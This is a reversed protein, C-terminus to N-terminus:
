SGGLEPIRREVEAWDDAGRAALMGTLRGFVEEPVFGMLFRIMGERDAASQGGYLWGVVEAMMPPEVLAAMGGAIETQEAVDFERELHPILLENEKAIHLRMHERLSVAERYLRVAADRREGGAPAREIDTLATDMTAFVNPEFDEHDFAYSEAVFEFRDNLAPFLVAEETHEHIKVRRHFTRVSEAFGEIADRDDRDLDRAAEEFDAVDRLIADHIYVYMQMPRPM